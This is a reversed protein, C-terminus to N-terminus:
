RIAKALAKAADWNSQGLGSVSIVVKNSQHLSVDAFKTKATYTVFGAYNGVTIKEETVDGAQRDEGQPGGAVLMPNGKPYETISITLTLRGNSYAQECTNMPPVGAMNMSQCDPKGVPKYGGVAPPFHSALQAYSVTFSLTLLFILATKM